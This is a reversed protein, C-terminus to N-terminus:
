PPGGSRHRLMMRMPPRDAPGEGTGHPEHTRQGTDSPTRPVGVLDGQPHWSRWEAKLTTVLVRPIAFLLLTKAM